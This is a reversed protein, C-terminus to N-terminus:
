QQIYIETEGSCFYSPFYFTYFVTITFFSKLFFVHSTDLHLLFIMFHTIHLHLLVDDDWYCM